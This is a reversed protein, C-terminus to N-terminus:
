SSWKATRIAVTTTFVRYQIRQANLYDELGALDNEYETATNFTSGSLSMLDPMDADSFNTLRKASPEDIAVMTVKVLPPMQNFTVANTSNMSDYSYNPAIATLSGPIVGNEPALQPSLILAVINDAITNLYPSTAIRADQLWSPLWTGPAAGGTQLSYIPNLEAPQRYEMLRFRTNNPVGRGLLFPPITTADNVSSIFYGTTTLLNKLGDYSDNVNYGTPAVFFACHGPKGAGGLLATSNGTVFRLDSLRAYRTPAEAIGEYETTDDAYGWYPNLTAQSLNRTILEFAVRAERFQSVKSRSRTWTEQVQGIVQTMVLMLVALVSISVLLEVLSFGSEAPLGFGSFASRRSRKKLAKRNLLITRM